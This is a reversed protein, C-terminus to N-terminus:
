QFIPMRIETFRKLIQEPRYRWREELDTSKIQLLSLGNSHFKSLDNIYSSLINKHYTPVKSWTKTHKLLCSFDTEINFDKDDQSVQWNTKWNLFHNNATQGYNQWFRDSSSLMNGSIVNMQIFETFYVLTRLSFVVGYIETNLGCVPFHPGSIVGYKSVKWATPPKLFWDFIQSPAQKTFINLSPIEHFIKTLFVGDYISSLMGFM